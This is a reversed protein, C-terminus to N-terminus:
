ELIHAPVILAVPKKTALMTDRAWEVQPRMPEKTLRRHPIKMLDLIPLMIEGMMLHEPADNGGEGRWSIVLLAPVDYMTSLSAIANVSVGLGSNQMLVMPTKGALRAGFAMGIASDERTASIYHLDEDHDLISVLDKLLSCPVGTFFDFGASKLAAVFEPAHSSGSSGHSM